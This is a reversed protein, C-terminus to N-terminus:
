CMYMYSTYIKLNIVHINRLFHFLKNWLEPINLIYDKDNYM